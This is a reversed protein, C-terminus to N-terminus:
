NPNPGQSTFEDVSTIHGQDNISFVHWYCPLLDNADDDSISFTRLLTNNSNFIEVKAKGFTPNETNCESYSYVYFDYTSSATYYEIRVNEPGFGNTIDNDLHGENDNRNNYYVHHGSFTLHSDLDQPQEQWTLRIKNVGRYDSTSMMFDVTKDEDPTFYQVSPDYGTLSSTATYSGYSFPVSLSYTGDAATTTSVSGDESTAIINVGELPVSPHHYYSYSTVTGSITVSNNNPYLLFNITKNSTSPTFVKSSDQYNNYSAVITDSDNSLPVELSYNGSTDTTTNILVSGFNDKVVVTARRALVGNPHDRTYLKVVGSIISSDSSLRFAINQRGASPTFNKTSSQYGNASATITYENESPSLTFSYLGKNNANANIIINGLSDKVVITVNDLGIDGSLDTVQGNIISLTPCTGCDQVCNTCTEMVLNNVLAQCYGDGCYGGGETPSPFTCTDTTLIPYSPLSLSNTTCSYQNSSSSSAVNDSVGDSGDCDEYGDNNIGGRGETNPSEKVGDGCYNNIKLDFSKTTSAGYHDNLKVQIHSLSPNSNQGQLVINDDEKITFFGLPEGSIQYGLLGGNKEFPGLVCNYRTNVHATSPCNFNLQTAPPKITIVFNKNIVTGQGNDVQIQYEFNTDQYFKHALSLIGSYNVQYRNSGLDVVNHSLEGLIDFPGSVKTLAYSSTNLNSGSFTFTYTLPDAHNPIYEENNAEIYISSSKIIIPVSTALVGGQNDSVTLHTNYSGPNGASVAYIKKQEPNSTDQLIPPNSWSSWNVSSTDLSWTLPDGNDDHVRIYGNFEQNPQGTVFKDLLKPPTNTTEGRLSIGAFVCSSGAPNAPAFHYNLSKNKSELSACLNYTSGNNNSSYALAYSGAPLNLNGTNASQNAFFTKNVENWCTTKDYGSCAGLRNIPDNFSQPMALNSLFVQSWSPWVSLSNGALYTGSSLTPYHGNINKFRTLAERIEELSGVRKVDRTIKSKLSDCFFNSPCDTDVLCNKTTKLVCSSSALGSHACGADLPCDSDDLCSLSSISCSAPSAGNLNSNFKWNAIIKGLIDITNATSEQNYSILYINTYINKTNQDVNAANVYVTRGDRVANYGDVLLLQPSGKFNQSEYWRVISYHNPNPIIRVAIADSNDSSIVAQTSSSAQLSNLILFSLLFFVAIVIFNVKSKIM